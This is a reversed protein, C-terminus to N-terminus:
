PATAAPAAVPTRDTTRTSRGPAPRLPPGRAASRHRVPPRPRHIPATADRVGHWPQAPRPPRWRLDGVPAAAYPVRGFFAVGPAAQRGLLVGQRVHALPPGHTVTPAAAAGPGAPGADPSAAATTAALAAVVALAAAAPRALRRRLLSRLV